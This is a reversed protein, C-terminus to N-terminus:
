DVPVVYFRGADIEVVKVLTGAKIEKLDCSKDIDVRWEIGSYRTKGPQMLSIDDVLRFEYGIFDSSNDKKPEARNDQLSKFPKWLAASIVASSVAFTVISSLWTSPVIEWWLLGGTALAALGLFLFFGASFGLIVLEVGLLIFGTVFWFSYLHTNLYEIM